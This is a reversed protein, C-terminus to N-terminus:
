RQTQRDQPKKVTISDTWDSFPPHNATAEKSKRQRLLYTSNKSRAPTTPPTDVRPSDDNVNSPLAHSVRVLEQFIRAIPTSLYSQFINSALRTVYESTATVFFASITAIPSSLRSSVTKFIDWFIDKHTGIDKNDAGLFWLFIKDTLLAAKKAWEHTPLNKGVVSQVINSPLKKGLSNISAITTFKNFGYNLTVNQMYYQLFPTKDNEDQKQRGVETLTIPVLECAVNVYTAWALACDKGGFYYLGSMLAVKSCTKVVQAIFNAEDYRYKTGGFSTNQHMSIYNGLIKAADRFSERAVVSDNLNIFAELGVEMLTSISTSIMVEKRNPVCNWIFTQVYKLTPISLNRNNEPM